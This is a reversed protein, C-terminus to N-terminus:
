RDSGPKAACRWAMLCQLSYLLIDHCAYAVLYTRLSMDKCAVATLLTTFFFTTKWISGTRIAGVVHFVMSVPTVLFQIAFVFVTIQAYEGALRWDKGFIFAFADPGVVLITAVPVIVVLLLRGTVARMLAQVSEGRQWKESIRQLFVQGLASAIVNSPLGIMLATLNFQGADASSHLKNIFFVPIASAMSNLMSSGCYYLPFDRYRQATAILAPFDGLMEWAKYAGRQVVAIGLAVNACVLGVGTSLILGPTGAGFWGFGIRSISTGLAQTAQGLSLIGFQKQCNLWYQSAQQGGMLLLTAPLFFLWGKLLQIGLFSAIESGLLVLLLTLVLSGSLAALLSILFIRFAEKEDSAVSIALEYKTTAAQGLILGVNTFVAAQGFQEATYLRTLLPATLYAVGNAVVSGFSLTAVQRAFRSRWLVGMEKSLLSVM